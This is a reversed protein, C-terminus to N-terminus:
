DYVVTADVVGSGGKISSSHRRYLHMHPCRSIHQHQTYECEHRTNRLRLERQPQPTIDLGSHVVWSWTKIPYAYQAPTHASHHETAM